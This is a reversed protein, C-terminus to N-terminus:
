LNFGSDLAKLIEHSCYVLEKSERLILYCICIICLVHCDLIFCRLRCTDEDSFSTKETNAMWM